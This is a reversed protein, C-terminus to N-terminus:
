LTASEVRDRGGRKASYLAVDALAILADPDADAQARWTALGASASIPQPIRPDDALAETLSLRAQEVLGEAEARGVEPLVFLFEDGGYRGFSPGSGAPQTRQWWTGLGRLVHDGTAHGYIDNIDKFHDLDLLAVSLPANRARCHEMRERLIRRIGRRNTCGSLEDVDAIDRLRRCEDLLGRAASMQNLAQVLAAGVREALGLVDTGLRPEAGSARVVLAGRPQQTFPLPVVIASHLPVSLGAEAWDARQAAFMPETAVDEVVVSTDTNLAAAIEPYRGLGLLLGTAAESESSVAICVDNGYDELVVSVRQVGLMRAMEQVVMRLARDTSRVEILERILDLAALRCEAVLRAARLRRYRRVHADVRARLEPM